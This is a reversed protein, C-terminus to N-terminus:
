KCCFMSPPKGFHQILIGMLNVHFIPINVGWFDLTSVWFNGNEFPTVKELAWWKLWKRHSGADELEMQPSSRLSSFTFVTKQSMTFWPSNMDSLKPFCVSLILSQVRWHLCTKSDTYNAPINKPGWFSTFTKVSFDSVANSKWYNYINLNRIAGSCNHCNVWICDWSQTGKWMQIMGFCPWCFWREGFLGRDFFGESVEM